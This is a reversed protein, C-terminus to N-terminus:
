GICGHSREVNTPPPAPAHLIAPLRPDEGADEGTWQFRCATPAVANARDDQGSRPLGRISRILRISYVGADAGSSVGFHGGSNRDASRPELVDCRGVTRPSRHGPDSPDSADTARSPTRPLRHLLVLTQGERGRAASWPRLLSFDGATRSYSRRMSTGSAAPSLGIGRSGSITASSKPQAATAKAHTRIPTAGIRPKRSAPTSSPGNPSATTSSSASTCCSASTPTTSSSNVMPM